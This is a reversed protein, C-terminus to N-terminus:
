RYRKKLDERLAAGDLSQVKNEYPNPLRATHADCASAFGVHQTNCTQSAVLASVHHTPMDSNAVKRKDM